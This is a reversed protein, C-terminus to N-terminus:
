FKNCNIQAPRSMFKLVSFIKRKSSSNSKTDSHIFEDQTGSRNFNNTTSSGNLRFPPSKVSETNLTRFLMPRFKSNLLFYIIPNVVTSSKALLVSVVVLRMPLLDANGYASWMSVVSYPMWCVLFGWSMAFTMKTLYSERNSLQRRKALTINSYRAMAKTSKMEQSYSGWGTLPISAWLLGFMYPFVLLLFSWNQTAININPQCITCYRTLAMVTLTLISILGFFFGLFGYITCGIEDFIWEHSFSSSITLPFACLPMLSDSIALNIIYRDNRSLRSWNSFCTCVVMVNLTVALFCIIVLYAGIVFDEWYLLKSQFRDTAPETVNLVELDTSM